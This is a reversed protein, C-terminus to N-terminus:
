IKLFLINKFCVKGACAPNQVERTQGCTHFALGERLFHLSQPFYLVHFPNPFIQQLWTQIICVYLNVNLPM